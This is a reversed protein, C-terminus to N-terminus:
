HPPEYKRFSLMLVVMATGLQSYVNWRSTALAVEHQLHRRHFYMLLNMLITWVNSFCGYSAILKSESWFVMCPHQKVVPSVDTNKPLYLECTYAAWKGTLLIISVMCLLVRRYMYITCLNEVVPISITSNHVLVTHGVASVKNQADTSTQQQHACRYSEHSKM